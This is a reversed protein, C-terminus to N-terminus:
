TQAVGGASILALGMRAAVIRGCLNFEILATSKRRNIRKIRAQQGVLPGQDILVSDGVKFGRSMPIVRHGPETCSDIIKIDGQNLPLLVGGQSVIRAFLNLKRLERDLVYPDDTVAILYGPFMPKDIAVWQGKIKIETTYQPFFCEQLVGHPVVDLISEATKQERGTIVQIVYWVDFGLATIRSASIQPSACLKAM